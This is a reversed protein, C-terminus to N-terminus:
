EPGCVDWAIHWFGDANQSWCLDYNHQTSPNHDQIGRLILYGLPAPSGQAQHIRLAHIHDDRRAKASWALDIRCRDFDGGVAKLDTKEM